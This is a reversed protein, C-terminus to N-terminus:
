FRTCSFSFTIHTRKKKVNKKLQCSHFKKEEVKKEVEEGEEEEKEEEEKDEEEEGIQEEEGGEGEKSQKWRTM